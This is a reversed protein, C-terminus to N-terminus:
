EQKDQQGGTLRALAEDLGPLELGGTLEKMADAHLQKGKLIAQNVAATVLDEILERDKEEILQPQIRCHLVELLGNIEVEVMEGGASGTARRTKLQDNLQRVRGGIEQAQKLINGFNSLGKFM